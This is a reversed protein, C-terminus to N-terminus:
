PDKLDGDDIAALRDAFLRGAVAEARDIGGDCVVAGFVAELADALISSRKAVGSKREGAGLQIFDGLGLNKAVAALSDRRVLNARMLTLEHETANPMADFLVRAVVFGLAADGLFELREFNEAGVSKHTLARALVTRDEFAYGLRGELSELPAKGALVPM